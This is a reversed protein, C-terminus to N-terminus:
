PNYTVKRIRLQRKVLLTSICKGVNLRGEHRNLGNRSTRNRGAVGRWSGSMHLLALVESKMCTVQFIALPIGFLVGHKLTIHSAADDGLDVQVAILFKEGCLESRSYNVGMLANHMCDM